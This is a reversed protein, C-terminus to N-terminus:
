IRGLLARPLATSVPAASFYLKGEDLGPLCSTSNFHVTLYFQCCQLPEQAPPVSQSLFRPSASARSWTSQEGFTGQHPSVRWSQFLHHQLLAPPRHQELPPPTSHGRPWREASGAPEPPGPHARDTRAPSPCRGWLQRHGAWDEGHAPGQGSWWAARGRLLGKGSCVSPSPTQLKSKKFLYIDVSHSVLVAPDPNRRREEEISWKTLRGADM